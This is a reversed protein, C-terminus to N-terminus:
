VTRQPEIPVFQVTLGGWVWTSGRRGKLTDGGGLIYCDFTITSQGYPLTVSHIRSPNSIAQYFSDYENQYGTLPEVDMSYSINTGITDLITRGSLAMGANQGEIFGFNRSITPFQVAVHYTVSDLTITMAAM